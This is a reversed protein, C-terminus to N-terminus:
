KNTRKHLKVYKHYFLLRESLFFPTDNNTDNCNVDGQFERM